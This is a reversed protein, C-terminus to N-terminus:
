YIFEHDVCVANFADLNPIQQLIPKNSDYSKQNNMLFDIAGHIREMHYLITQYGDIPSNSKKSWFPVLEDILACFTNAHLINDDPTRSKRGDEVATIKMLADDACWQSKRGHRSEDIDESYSEHTEYLNALYVNEISRVFDCRSNSRISM